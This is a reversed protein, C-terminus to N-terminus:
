ITLHVLVFFPSLTDGNITPTNGLTLASLGVLRSLMRKVPSDFLRSKEEERSYRCTQPDQAEREQARIGPSLDPHAGLRRGGKPSSVILCTKVKLKEEGAVGQHEAPVPGM